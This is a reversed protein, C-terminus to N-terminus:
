AERTLDILLMCFATLFEGLDSGSWERMQPSGQSWSRNEGYHADKLGQPLETGHKTIHAHFHPDLAFQTIRAKGEALEGKMKGKRWGIGPRDIEVALMSFFTGLDVFIM